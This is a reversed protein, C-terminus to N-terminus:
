FESRQWKVNGDQQAVMSSFSGTMYEKTNFTLEYFHTSERGHGDEIVHLIIRDKTFYNKEIFGAVSGRTRNKGEYSKERQSTKEFIKEVTGEIRNGERWLMAIYRLDMDKYPNYASNVTHMELYWRGTIDPLPFVIERLWFFLLTLFGGGLITALFACLLNVWFQEITM